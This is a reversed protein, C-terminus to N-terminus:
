KIDNKTNHHTIFYGDWDAKPTSEKLRSEFLHNGTTRGCAHLDTVGATAREYVNSVTTAVSRVTSVAMFFVLVLLLAYETLAEGEEERWLRVLLGGM